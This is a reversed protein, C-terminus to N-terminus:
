KLLCAYYFGDHEPSPLLQGDLADPLSVLGRRADPTEALFREIQQANEDKFVSCTAYCLTGGVKLLPWLARLLRAQAKALHAIDADRKLWRADPHRRVVGSGTCPADLLIRDFLRGDWWTQPTVADAVKLEASLGLRALNDRVRIMRDEDVDLALLDLNNRELLHATKGGPAACADLVRMGDRADLLEAAFQAAPDQVSVWGESFGPLVSVPCPTELTLAWEGSRRANINAARLAEAMASLTSQRRNIRLSMPPHHASVEAIRIWDEPWDRQLRRLWWRPLNYCAVSDRGAEGALDAQQRQFNRLVANAFGRAWPFDRAVAEVTEHVAAHAATQGETLEYLGLLLYGFLEAPDLPKKLLHELYFRLRGAYRLTGYSLDQVAGRVPGPPLPALIDALSEGQLLVRNIAEAAINRPNLPKRTSM